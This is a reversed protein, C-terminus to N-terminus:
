GTRCGPVHSAQDLVIDDGVFAGANVDALSSVLGDRTDPPQNVVPVSNVGSLAPESLGANNLNRLTSRRQRRLGGAAVERRLAPSLRLKYHISSM